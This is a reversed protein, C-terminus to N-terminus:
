FSDPLFTGKKSFSEYIVTNKKLQDPVGAFLNPILFIIRMIGGMQDLPLSYRLTLLIRFRHFSSPFPPLRSSFDCLLQRLLSIEILAGGDEEGSPASRDLKPPYQPLILTASSPPRDSIASFYIALVIKKSGHSRGKESRVGAQL